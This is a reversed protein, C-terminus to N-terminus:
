VPALLAAQIEEEKALAIIPPILEDVVRAADPQYGMISAVSPSLAGIEGNDVMDKLHSIPLVVQPDADVMKHDYHNHAYAIAAFPTTSPIIRLTYDGIPDAADFPEQVGQLYAGASTILMVRSESLTVGTGSPAKENRPHKYIKWNEQGTHQLESLWEDQFEQSWAEKNELIDM